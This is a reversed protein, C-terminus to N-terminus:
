RTAVLTWLGYFLGQEHGWPMVMRVDGFGADRFVDVVDWGFHYFCLVGASILDGHYEPELLHRIEGAGDVIARTITDPGDTFPFTAVCVGGPRLTRAFESAAAAYDPVHELVDFSAIADLSADAFTLKTVDQFEVAGVGGAQRFRRTLELRKLLSPEFESGHLTGRLHRQLRIFTETVQETLYVTPERGLGDLHDLMLRLAARVRSNGHCTKCLLAERPDPREPDAFSALAFGESSGCLGCTGAIHSWDCEAKFQQSALWADRPGEHGDRQQWSDFRIHTM